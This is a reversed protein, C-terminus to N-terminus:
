WAYSRRRLREQLRALELMGSPVALDDEMEGRLLLDRVRRLEAGIALQRLNPPPDAPSRSTAGRASIPNVKAKM